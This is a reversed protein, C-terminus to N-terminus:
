PDALDPGVRGMRPARTQSNLLSRCICNELVQGAHKRYANAVDSPILVYKQVEDLIQPNLYLPSNNAKTWKHLRVRRRQRVGFFANHWLLPERAANAIEDTVKELFGGEIRYKPPLVGNQLSLKRSEQALTCFRRLERAARDLTIINGGFAFNSVELYRFRGFANVYDIFERTVATLGLTIKGSREIAEFAAKLDHRVNKAPIRNLLLICKLYKEVTQQSSWLSPTVLAARYAMRAAIYDAEGEDRFSRIAFDNVLLDLNM